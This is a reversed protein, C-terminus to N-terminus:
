ILKLSYVFIQVHSDKKEKYIDSPIMFRDVEILKLDTLYKWVIKLDFM